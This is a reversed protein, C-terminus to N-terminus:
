CCIFNLKIMTILLKFNSLFVLKKIFLEFYLTVINEDCFLPVRKVIINYFVEINNQTNSVLLVSYFFNFAFIM